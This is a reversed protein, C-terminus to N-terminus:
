TAPAADGCGGTRSRAAFPPFRWRSEDGPPVVDTHGAFVLHPAGAGITAFLNDVDPTGAESFMQRHCTFGAPELFGALCDLVGADVPTVSPCRILARAIDLARSSM